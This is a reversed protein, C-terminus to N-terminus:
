REENEQKGKNKTRGKECVIGKKTDEVGEM